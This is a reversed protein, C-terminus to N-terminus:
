QDPPALRDARDSPELDLPDLRYGVGAVARIAAGAGDLRRRLRQVRRSITKLDVASGDGCAAIIDELKVVMGPRRALLCLIRMENLSLDIRRDGVRAEFRQPHVSLTGARLVREPSVEGAPPLLNEVTM